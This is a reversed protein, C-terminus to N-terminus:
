LLWFASCWVACVCVGVLPNYDDNDTKFCSVNRLGALLLCYCVVHLSYVLIHKQFCNHNM